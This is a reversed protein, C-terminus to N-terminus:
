LWQAYLNDYSYYGCYPFYSSPMLRHRGCSRQQKTMRVSKLTTNNTEGEQTWILARVSISIISVDNAHGSHVLLRLRQLRDSNSYSLSNTDAVVLGQQGLVRPVTFSAKEQLPSTPICSSPVFCQDVPQYHPCMMIKWDRDPRAWLKSRLVMDM